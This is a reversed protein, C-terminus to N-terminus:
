TYCPGIERIEITAWEAAPCQEAWARAESLSQCDILFYGGIFEKAETFPGDVFSAKGARRTLRVAESRLSNIGLLVGRAELKHSYELMRQYRNQGEEVARAGRQGQPEVILLLYSM